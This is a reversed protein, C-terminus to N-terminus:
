NVKLVPVLKTVWISSNDLEVATTGIATAVAAALGIDFIKKLLEKKTRSNPKEMSM